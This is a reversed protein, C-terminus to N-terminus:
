LCLKRDEYFIKLKEMQEDTILQNKLVFELCEEWTIWSIRKTLKELYEVNVPHGNRESLRPIDCALAAPDNMYQHMKFYYFREGPYKKYRSPTVLVFYFDEVKNKVETLGVDICRAIQNRNTCHTTDSSIDATFKAEFFVKKPNTCLVADFNTAGEIPKDKKSIERAYKVPHQAAEKKLVMLIEKTPSVAKELKLEFNKGSDEWETQFIQNLLKNWLEGEGKNLAAFTLLTLISEDKHIQLKDRVLSISKPLEKHTYEYAKENAALKEIHRMRGQQDRSYLSALYKEEFILDM